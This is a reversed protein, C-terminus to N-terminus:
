ARSSRAMPPLVNSLAIPRANVPTLTEPRQYYENRGQIYAPIFPNAAASDTFSRIM